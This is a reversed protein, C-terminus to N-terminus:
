VNLGLCKKNLYVKDDCKTCKGVVLMSDSYIVELNCDCTDRLMISSMAEIVTPKSM